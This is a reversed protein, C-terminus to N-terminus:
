VRSFEFGSFVKEMVSHPIKSSDKVEVLEDWRRGTSFKILSIKGVVPECLLYREGDLMGGVSGGVSGKVSGKVIFYDGISYMVEEVVDKYVLTSNELDLEKGEVVDLEVFVREMKPLSNEVLTVHRKSVEFYNEYLDKESVLQIYIYLCEGYANEVVRHVVCDSHCLLEMKDCWGHIEKIEEKDGTLRVISGEKIEKQDKM